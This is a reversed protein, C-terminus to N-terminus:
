RLWRWLRGTFCLRWWDDGHRDRRRNVLLALADIGSESERRVLQLDGGDDIYSFAAAPLELDGPVFHGLVLVPFRDVHFQELVLNSDLAVLAGKGHRLIGAPRQFAARVFHHRSKFALRLLGLKINRRRLRALVFSWVIAVILQELILSMTHTNPATWAPVFSTSIVAYKLTSGQQSEPPESRGPVLIVIFVFATSLEPSLGLSTVDMSETIVSPSSVSAGLTM